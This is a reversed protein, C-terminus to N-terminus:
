SHPRAECAECTRTTCTAVGCLEPIRELLISIGLLLLLLCAIGKM